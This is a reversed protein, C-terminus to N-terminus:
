LELDADVVGEDPDQVRRLLYDRLEGGERLLLLLFGLGEAGDLVHSNAHKRDHPRHGGDHPHSYRGENKALQSLFGEVGGRGLAQALLNSM